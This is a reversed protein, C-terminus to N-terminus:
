NTKSIRFSMFYPTHKTRLYGNQSIIINAKREIWIVYLPHFKLNTLSDSIEIRSTWTRSTTKKTRTFIWWCLIFINKSFNYWVKLRMVREIHPKTRQAFIELILSWTTISHLFNVNYTYHFTIFERTYRTKRILLREFCNLVFEIIFAISYKEIEIQHNQSNRFM